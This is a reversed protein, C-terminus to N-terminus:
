GMREFKFENFNEDYEFNFIKKSSKEQILLESNDDEQSIIKEIFETLLLLNEREKNNPRYGKNLEFIHEYLTYDLDLGIRNTKDQNIYFNLKINRKFRYGIDQELEERNKKFVFPTIKLSKAIYFSELEYLILYDKNLFHKWGFIAKKVEGFLKKYGNINKKNFYYLYKLYNSYSPNQFENKIKNKGYITSFRIITDILQLQTKNDLNNINVIDLLPNTFFDIGNCQIYESIVELMDSTTNLEIIMQDIIESRTNAPDEYNIIKLLDSQKTDFLLNPLLKDIFALNNKKSSSNEIKPPVLIEYIFNLIERTSIIKKYKIIIKIIYQVITSQVKSDMLMQYNYIVPTINEENIDKIYASYFPNKSDENTIKSILAQIYNSNPHEHTNENLEFLNYDNFNIIHISDNENDSDVNDTDFISSKDLVNKLTSYNEKAYDSELFNNLVGLNIAMVLKEKSDNINDNNFSKLAINLTYLSNKDPFYSETADNHITFKKMLEPQSENFYSILHSKGDGVSGCLLILQSKDKNAVKELTALLEGQIEREVHLYKKFESFNEHDEIAEQSSDKLKSLEGILYSGNIIEFSDDEKSSEQSYVETSEDTKTINISHNNQNTYPNPTEYDKAEFTKDGYKKYFWVLITYLNRHMKLASELEGEVKDHSAVNGTMRVDHFATIIKERIIGFDDLTGIRNFQNVFKCNGLKEIEFIKETIKEGLRRGDNIALRPNGEIINKEILICEKEFEPYEDELFSFITENNM